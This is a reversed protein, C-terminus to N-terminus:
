CVLRFGRCPFFWKYSVKRRGGHGRQQERNGYPRGAGLDFTNRGRMEGYPRGAGFDFTNRGKMEGCPRDAGFDFTNRGRMEGYPRDAGFDFTNRGKMEGCPGDAGFDFTNRGRMEGYGTQLSKAHQLTGLAGQGITRTEASCMVKRGWHLM